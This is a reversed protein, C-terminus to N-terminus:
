RHRERPLRASFMTGGSLPDEVVITGGHAEMAIRCFTLGLGRGSYGSDLQPQLRAYKQFIVARAEIPIPTGQNIVSIRDFAEGEESEFRITSSKPAHRLANDFLNLLVRRLLERDASVSKPGKSLDIEVEQKREDRLPALVSVVDHILGDLEVDTRSVVLAGDESRALDLLNMVIRQCTEATLFVTAWQERDAESLGPKKLFTRSLMMLGAAPSKLDHVLLASLERRLQEARLLAENKHALEDMARRLAANARISDEFVSMLLDLVQATNAKADVRKGRFLIPVTSPDHPARRAERAELLRRIGEELHAGDQSKTIFADAGSELARLIEEPAELTTLLIVPTHAHGQTSKIASAVDYGTMGPMLVDSVVLDIDDRLAALASEGDPAVEVLYGASELLLKTRARQTPSDEILLIRTV